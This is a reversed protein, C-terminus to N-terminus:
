QPTGADPIGLSRFEAEPRDRGWASFLVAVPPSRQRAKAWLSVEGEDWDDSPEPSRAESAILAQVTWRHGLILARSLDDAEAASDALACTHAFGGQVDDTKQAPACRYHLFYANM